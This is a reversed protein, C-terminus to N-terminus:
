EAQHSHREKEEAQEQSHNGYVGRNPAFFFPPGLLAPGGM